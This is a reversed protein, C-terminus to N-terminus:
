GTEGTPVCGTVTFRLNQVPYDYRPHQVLHWVGDIQLLPQVTTHPLLESGSPQMYPVYGAARVNPWAVADFANEDDIVYGGDWPDSDNHLLLSVTVMNGDLGTLEPIARVVCFEGGGSAASRFFYWRPVDDVDYMVFVRVIVCREARMAHTEDGPEEGNLAIKREALNTAALHYAPRGVVNDAEDPTVAFVELHVADNIPTGPPTVEVVEKVWYRSDDFDEEDNPGSGVIAGLFSQRINQPDVIQDHLRIANANGWDQVAVGRGPETTLERAAHEILTSAEEQTLLGTQKDSTVIAM